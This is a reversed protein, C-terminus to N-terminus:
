WSHLLAAIYVRLPWGPQTDASPDTFAFYLNNLDADRFNSARENTNICKSLSQWTFRNKEPDWSIICFPVDVPTEKNAELLAALDFSAGNEMMHSNDYMPAPFGFCYYFDFSKLDAYSLVLFRILPSSDNVWDGSKIAEAIREGETRMLANKDCGRFEEITNKNYIAGSSQCYNQPVGITRFNPHHAILHCNCFLLDCM